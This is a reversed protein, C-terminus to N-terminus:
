AVCSQVTWLHRHAACGELILKMVQPILDPLSVGSATYLKSIDEPGLRQGSRSSAGAEAPLGYGQLWACLFRASHLDTQALSSTKSTLATRICGLAAPLSIYKHWALEGLLGALLVGGQNPQM